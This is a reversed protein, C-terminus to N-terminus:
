SSLLSRYLQATQAAISRWGLHKQVYDRAREAKRTADTPDSLLDDIAEALAEVSGAAFTTGLDQSRITEAMGGVDSAVVPIGTGLASLLVGSQDIYHYPLVIADALAFYNALDATPLYDFHCYVNSTLEYERICTELAQKRDPTARGALVLTVNPYQRRVRSVAEICLETGKYPRMHGFHLLFPGGPDLNLRRAAQQRPPLRLRHFFPGMPIVSVKDSAVGFRDMIQNKQYATHVVLHDVMHYLRQYGKLLDVTTM